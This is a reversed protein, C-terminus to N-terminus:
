ISNPTGHSAYMLVDQLSGEVWLMTMNMHPTVNRVYLLNRTEISQMVQAKALTDPFINYITKVKECGSIESLRLLCMSFFRFIIGIAVNPVRFITHWALLFVCMFTVFKTHSTDATTHAQLEENEEEDSDWV